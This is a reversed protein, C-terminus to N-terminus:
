AGDEPGDTSGLLLLKFGSAPLFVCCTYSASPVTSVRAHWLHQTRSTAPCAAAATALVLHPHTSAPAVLAQCPRAHTASVAMLMQVHDRLCGAAFNAIKRDLQQVDHHPINGPQLVHLVRRALSKYRSSGSSNETGGRLSLRVRGPVLFLHRTTVGCLLSLFLFSLVGLGTQVTAGAADLQASVWGLTM